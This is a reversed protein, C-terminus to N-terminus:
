QTDELLFKGRDHQGIIHRNGDVIHGLCQHCKFLDGTFIIDMNRCVPMRTVAVDMGLHEHVGGVRFVPPLRFFRHRPDIVRHKGQVAGRGALVPDANCLGRKKVLLSPRGHLHHLVDFPNQVGVVDHIGFLEHIPLVPEDRFEAVGQLGQLIPIGVELPPEILHDGTGLAPVALPDTGGVLAQTPIRASGPAFNQQGIADQALFQVHVLRHGIAQKLTYEAPVALPSARGVDLGRIHDPSGPGLQHIRAKGIFFM